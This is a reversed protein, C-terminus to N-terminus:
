VPYDSALVPPQSRDGTMPDSPRGERRLPDGRRSLDRAEAADWADAFGGSVRLAFAGAGDRSARRAGRRDRHARRRVDGTVAARRRLPRNRTSIEGEFPTEGPHCHRAPSRRNGATSRDPRGCDSANFARRPYGTTLARLEASLASPEPGLHRPNLDRRARITRIAHSRRPSQRLVALRTSEDSLHGGVPADIANAYLRVPRHLTRQCKLLIRLATYSPPHGRLPSHLALM